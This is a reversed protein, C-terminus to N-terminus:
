NDQFLSSQNISAGAAGGGASESPMGNLLGCIGSIWLWLSHPVVMLDLLHCLLNIWGWLVSGLGGPCVPASWLWREQSKFHLGSPCPSTSSCWLKARRFSQALSVTNIAMNMLFCTVIGSLSPYGGTSQLWWCGWSHFTILAWSWAPFELFIAPQQWNCVQLGCSKRVRHCCFQSGAAQKLRSTNLLLRRENFTEFSDLSEM